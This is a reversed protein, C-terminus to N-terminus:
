FNNKYQLDLEEEQKQSLHKKLLGYASSLGLNESIYTKNTKIQSKEKFKDVIQLQYEINNIAKLLKRDHICIYM